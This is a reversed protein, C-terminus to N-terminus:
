MFLSLTMLLLIRLSVSFLISLTKSSVKLMVPTKNSDSEIDTPILSAKYKDVENRTPLQLKPLLELRLEQYKNVSLDLNYILSTAEQVSLTESKSTEDTKFKKKGRKCLEDLLYSASM